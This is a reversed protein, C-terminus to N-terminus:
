NFIVREDFLIATGGVYPLTEPDTGPRQTLYHGGYLATARENRPLGKAEDLADIFMDQRSGDARRIAVRLVHFSHKPM